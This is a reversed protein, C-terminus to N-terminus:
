SVRSDVARAGDLVQEVLGSEDLYADIADWAQPRDDIAARRVRSYLECVVSPLGPENELDGIFFRTHRLQPDLFHAVYDQCAAEDVARGLSKGIRRVQRAPDLMLEDYDVCLRVEGRTETIAGLTHEIWLQYTKDEHFGNRAGLSRAVSMPNRVALLYAVRLDQQRFIPKWFALLRALRPDKLGFAACGAMKARLLEAARARLPALEQRELARAPPVGLTDWDAGLLDLVEINLANIDLDEWFGKDNDGAVAPMLQDGLEVGVVALARALASTGSRHMGLVVVLLKQSPNSV